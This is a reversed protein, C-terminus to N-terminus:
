LHWKKRAFIVQNGPQDLKDSIIMFGAEEILQSNVEAPNGSHKFREGFMESEITHEDIIELETGEPAVNTDDFTICLIGHPKLFSHLKKLVELHQSAHIHFLAFWCVIGDFRLTTEFTCIDATFLKDEPIIQKAHEIQKPSIDIGYVNFGKDLLYAAIPKGSGCGVDLISAKPDLLTILKDMPEKELYWEREKEWIDAIADYSQKIKDAFTNKM